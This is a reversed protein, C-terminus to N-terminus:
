IELAVLTEGGSVELVTGTVYRNEMLFCAAHAIDAPTGIRKAPSTKAV